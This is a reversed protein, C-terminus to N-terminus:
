APCHRGRIRKKVPAPSKEFDEDAKLIQAETKAKHMEPTDQQAKEEDDGFRDMIKSILKDFM